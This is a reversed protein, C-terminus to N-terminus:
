SPPIEQKARQLLDILDDVKVIWSRPSDGAAFIEVKHTGDQYFVEALHDRARWFEFILSQRHPASAIICEIDGKKLEVREIDM